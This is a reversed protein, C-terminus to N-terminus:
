GGGVLEELGVVRGRRRWRALTEEEDELGLGWTADRVAITAHGRAQLGDVAQTVCVDRAVGVVVFETEDGLEEVLAEVFPEAAPNGAFVDFRKKRIVVPRNEAVARAAIEAADAPDADRDLILPREPRVSEIIEAGRAMEPDESLGMCHPPYTGAEPDPADPDIEEDEMAHWDTTYVLVDCHARMWRVAEEIKPRALIAGEDAPDGLDSVYLRGGEDPPRMFDHQVDTVWGVRPPANASRRDTEEDNM